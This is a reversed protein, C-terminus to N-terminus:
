RMEFAFHPGPLSQPYERPVAPYAGPVRPVWARICQSAWVSATCSPAARRRRGNTAANATRRWSDGGTACTENRGGGFGSTRGFLLRRRRRKGCHLSARSPGRQDRCNKTEKEIEFSPICSGHLMVSHRRSIELMAAPPQQPSGGMAGATPRSDDHKQCCIRITQGHYWAGGQLADREYTRQCIRERGHCRAHCTVLRRTGRPHIRRVSTGPARHSRVLWAGRKRRACGESENPFSLGRKAACNGSANLRLEVTSGFATM